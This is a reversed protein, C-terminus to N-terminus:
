WRCFAIRFSFTPLLCWATVSARDMPRRYPYCGPIPRAVILGALPKAAGGGRCHFQPCVAGVVVLVSGHVDDVDDQSQEADRVRAAVSRKWSEVLGAALPSKEHM